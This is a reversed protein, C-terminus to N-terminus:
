LSFTGTITTLLIVTLMFKFQKMIINNIKMFTLSKMVKIAKFVEKITIYNCKM